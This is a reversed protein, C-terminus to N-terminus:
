PSGRRPDDSDTKSKRWRPAEMDKRPKKRSPDVRDTYPNVLRPDEKATSSKRFRPAEIDSRENMRNPDVIDTKPM